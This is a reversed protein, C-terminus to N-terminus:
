LNQLFSGRKVFVADLYTLRGGRVLQSMDIIDFFDFGIKDLHGIFNAFQTEGLMRESVSIESIIVETNELIKLSGKLVEIEYGEVDM